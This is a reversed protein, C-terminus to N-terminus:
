ATAVDAEQQSAEDSIYATNSLDNDFSYKVAVNTCNASNSRECSVKICCPVQNCPGNFFTVNTFGLGTYSNETKAGQGIINSNCDNIGDTVTVALKFGDPNFISYWM